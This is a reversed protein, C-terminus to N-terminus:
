SVQEAFAALGEQLHESAEAVLDRLMQEAEPTGVPAMRDESEWSMGPGLSKEPGADILASAVLDGEDTLELCRGFRLAFQHYSPGTSIMSCRAWHWVSQARGFRTRLRLRKTTREDTVGIRAGPHAARFLDDIPETLANLRKISAIALDKRAALQGAAELEPAIRERIQAVVDGAEVTVPETSLGLWKRLEESVTRMSPREPAADRTMRDLLQDLVHSLPHVLWQNLSADVRGLLHPGAPPFRQGTALVWLTKALSFVDAPAAEARAPDRVMEDAMFFRPGLPRGTKTLDADDPVDILGFDGVLWDGGREYLNAPKIDRHGFGDHQEVLGALTEAIDAMAVVVTELPADALAIWCPQAIPMALWPLEESDRAELNTAVLPLVGPMPGLGVLFNIEKVFRRFPEGKADPQHLVKLAIGDPHEQSTAAWVDANGGSGLKKGLKWPGVTDGRRAM